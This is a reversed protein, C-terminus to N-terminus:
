KKLSRYSGIPVEFRDFKSHNTKLSLKADKLADIDIGAPFTLVLRHHKGKNLTNAVVDVGEVSVEIESVELPKDEYTLVTIYKKMDRQLVGQPMMIRNPVVQVPAMVYASASITFPDVDPLNTDFQISARNSGYILPPVTTVEIAFEKGEKVTKLSVKFSEGSVRLNRIEMPTDVQNVVRIITSKVADLRKLAPFAAVMPDVSVPTWVKGQIKLLTSRHKPDNTSVTVSKTIPGKFRDTNLQIPIVGFGGPEVTKTWAGATTCGCGPRVSEIKLVQNGRNFFKFDHRINEGKQVTGFTYVPTEFEILPFAEVSNDQAQSRPVAVTILFVLLGLFVKMTSKTRQQKM